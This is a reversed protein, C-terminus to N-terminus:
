FKDVGKTFNTVASVGALYLSILNLSSIIIQPRILFSCRSVPIKNVSILNCCATISLFVSTKTNFLDLYCNETKIYM